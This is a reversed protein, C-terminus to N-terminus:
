SDDTNRRERERDREITAEVADNLTSVNLKRVDAERLTQAERERDRKLTTVAADYASSGEIRVDVSDLDRLREARDKLWQKVSNRSVMDRTIAPYDEAAEELTEIAVERDRRLMNAANVFEEDEVSKLDAVVDELDEQAEPTINEDALAGEALQTFMTNMVDLLGVAASEFDPNPDESQQEAAQSQQLIDTDKDTSKLVDERVQAEFQALWDYFEAKKTHMVSKAGASEAEDVFALSYLHAMEDISKM